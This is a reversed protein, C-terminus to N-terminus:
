LDPMPLWWFELFRYSFRVTILKKAAMEKLSSIEVDVTTTTPMTMHPTLQSIGNEEEEETENSPHYAFLVEKEKEKRELCPRINNSLDFHPDFSISNGDQM